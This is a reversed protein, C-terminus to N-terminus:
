TLRRQWSLQGQEILEMIPNSVSRIEEKTAIMVPDRKTNSRECQLLLDVVACFAYGVNM